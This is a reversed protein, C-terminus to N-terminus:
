KSLIVQGQGTIERLRKRANELEIRNCADPPQVKMAMCVYILGGYGLRSLHPAQPTVDYARAWRDMYVRIFEDELQGREVLACLVTITRQMARPLTQWPVDKCHQLYVTPAKLTPCLMATMTRKYQAKFESMIPMMQKSTRDLRTSVDDLVDQVTWELVASKM